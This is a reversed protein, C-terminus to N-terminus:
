DEVVAYSGCFLGVRRGDKYAVACGTYPSVSVSDCELGPPYVTCGDRWDGVRTLAYVALAVAAIVGVAAATRLAKKADVSM